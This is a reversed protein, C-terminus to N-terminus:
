KLKRKRGIKSQELCINGIHGGGEDGIDETSDEMADVNALAKELLEQFDKKNLTDIRENYLTALKSLNQDKKFDNVNVTGMAAVANKFSDFTGQSKSSLEIKEANEGM